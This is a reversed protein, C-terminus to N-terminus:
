LPNVTNKCCFGKGDMVLDYEVVVPRSHPTAIVAETKKPTDKEISKVIPGSQKAKAASMGKQAEIAEQEERLKRSREMEKQKQEERFEDLIVKPNRFERRVVLNPTHGLIDWLPALIENAKPWDLRRLLTYVAKRTPLAGLKRKGAEIQIRKRPFLVGVYKNGDIFGSIVRHLILHLPYVRQDPNRPDPISKLCEWYTDHIGKFVEPVLIDPLEEVISNELLGQIHNRRKEHREQRHGCTDVTHKRRM